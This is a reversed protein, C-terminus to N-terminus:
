AANAAEVVKKAADTLGEANIIDVGSEALIKRGEEVETGELRVVLPVNFGVEKYAALVANAITTCQMIGGFINVLVAKCNPDGLLIRFAETVQDKNAGGGVDLFNAPEGGHLKVIDMTSMALGAGNVLCGINGELQVYSLGAEGARLENADEEATDRLEVLKPHRFLANDDFNIKGDLAMLEGAGTVVLPNIEALSCDCDVFLKCIARFFKDAAKAAAGELGLKWALKRSQYSQLGFNPDFPATHILHPTEHAVKEIDMGGETSVMLVPKGYGRDVVIGLYLERAIDCGAEVLVQKVTQGEPGTQITVLDGGLLAGAVRAADEASKVLEVGRQEAGKITGKGRGGAHVQAKVVAIAGGLQKYAAAAEEPTKALIGEPVPIGADRFLQKAQYEHIKM